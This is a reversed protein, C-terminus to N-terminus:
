EEDRPRVSAIGSAGFSAAEMGMPVMWGQCAGNEEERHVTARGKEERLLSPM